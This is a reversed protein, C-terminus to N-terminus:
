SPALAEVDELNQLTLTSSVMNPQPEDPPTGRMPLSQPDHSGLSGLFLRARQATRTSFRTSLQISTDALDVRNEVGMRMGVMQVSNVIQPGEPNV